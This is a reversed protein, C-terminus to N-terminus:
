SVRRGALKYTKMSGHPRNINLRAAPSRDKMIKNLPPTLSRGEKESCLGRERVQRTYLCRSKQYPSPEKENETELHM